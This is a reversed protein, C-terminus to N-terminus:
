CICLMLCCFGVLSFWSETAQLDKFPEGAFNAVVFFTTLGLIPKALTLFPRNVFFM